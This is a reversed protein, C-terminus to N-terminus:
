MVQKTYIKVQMNTELQGETGKMQVMRIGLLADRPQLHELFGATRQWSGKLKMEYVEGSGDGYLPKSEAEVKLGYDQAKRTLDHMVEPVQEAGVARAASSNVMRVQSSYTSVVEEMHITNARVKQAQWFSIYCLLGLGMVLVGMLLAQFYERDLGMRALWDRVKNIEDMLAM